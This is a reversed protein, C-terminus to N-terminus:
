QLPPEQSLVSTLVAVPVNSELVSYLIGSRSIIFLQGPGTVDADFHGNEAANTLWHFLAQQNSGADKSVSASKTIIFNLLLSDQLNAISQDSFTNSSDIAPVAIIQLSTDAAQLSDLFRLQVTDPNDASFSTIIVKKGAFSSLSVPQGSAVLEINIDYVSGAWLFVALLIASSLLFIKM